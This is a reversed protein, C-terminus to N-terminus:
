FYPYKHIHDRLWNLNHCRARVRAQQRGVSSENDRECEDIAIDCGGKRLFFLSSSTVGRKNLTKLLEHATKGMPKIRPTLFNKTRTVKFLRLAEDYATFTRRKKVRKDKVESLPTLSALLHELPTQIKTPPAFLDGPRAEFQDPYESLLPANHYSLWAAASSHQTPAALQPSRNARPGPNTDDTKM